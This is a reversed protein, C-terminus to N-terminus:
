RNGRLLHSFWEHCLRPWQTNQLLYQHHVGLKLMWNRHLKSKDENCERFHMNGLTSRLNDNSQYNLLYCISISWLFPKTNAGGGRSNKPDDVVFSTYPIASPLTFITLKAGASIPASSPFVLTMGKVLASISASTFLFVYGSPFNYTYQTINCRTKM